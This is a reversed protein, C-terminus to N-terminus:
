MMLESTSFVFSRTAWSALSVPYRTTKLFSLSHVIPNKKTKKRILLEVEEGTKLKEKIVADQPIVIGKSKGWDRVIATVEIM